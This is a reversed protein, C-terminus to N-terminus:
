ADNLDLPLATLEQAIEDLDTFLEANDLVIRVYLFM